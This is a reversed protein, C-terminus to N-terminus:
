DAWCGLGCLYNKRLNKEREAVDSELREIREGDLKQLRALKLRLRQNKLELYELYGEVYKTWNPFGLHQMDWDMNGKAAKKLEEGTFKVEINASHPIRREVMYRVQHDKPLNSRAIVLDTLDRFSYLANRIQSLRGEFEQRTFLGELTQEDPPSDTPPDTAAEETVVADAEKGPTPAPPLDSSANQSAPREARKAPVSGTSSDANVEADEAPETEADQGTSCGGATLALWAVLIIPLNKM